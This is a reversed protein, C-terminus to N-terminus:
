KKMNKEIKGYNAGMLIHPSIPFYEKIMFYEEKFDNSNKDKLHFINKIVFDDLMLDYSVM